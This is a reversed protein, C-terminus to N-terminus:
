AADEPATCYSRGCSRTEGRRIEASTALIVNGQCWCTVKLAAPDVRVPMGHAFKPGRRIPLITM